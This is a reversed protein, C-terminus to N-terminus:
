HISDRRGARMNAWAGNGDLGPRLGRYIVDSVSQESGLAQIQTSALRSDRHFFISESLVNAVNKLLNLGALVSPGTTMMTGKLRGIFADEHQFSRKTTWSAQPRLSDLGDTNTVIASIFEAAKGSHRSSALVANSVGSKSKPYLFGDHSSSRIAESLTDMGGAAVVDADMYVGGEEFMLAARTIDSAAAYNRYAGSKERNYMSELRAGHPSSKSINAYLDDTSKINIENGFNHALYREYASSESHLMKDLTSYIAMPRSTWVNVTYEPDMHKIFLMNSLAETSINKGEWAFHVVLPIAEHGARDVYSVPNNRVMRYLNQGDVTGAPDPNLWRGLWPAYYRFGYYYLGTADREKASYRVFKYKTESASKGSWVATGGFPYYEEQTLIDADQNLEILTSGIQNDLTGRLQDNAIDEPRGEEWHLVRVQQRGTSGVSIVHLEEVNRTTSGQISQTRRVELGPLYIVQVRRTTGSTHSVATKRVRTGAGDYQYHEEDDDSGGRQVQTVQQLQNRGNWLLTQGVALQKLNGAADFQGEVDAATPSVSQQVARNSTSSVLMDMTYSSNGVHRMQVLNGGNDYRYQRTYNSYQSPDAGSPEPLAPGQRGAGANERGSATLLQYLADYQYGNAPEIRQNNHFRSEIAANGISLINGVPDYVYSLDQLLASRTGQAPRTCVLRSLRLTQPEYHYNTVVGNGAAERLVQGGADYTVSALIPPEVTQGVLTLGSSALQGAINLQQRQQNGKADVSSLVDGLANYGICSQYREAELSALWQSEAGQWDSNAADDRLLQRVTQLPQSSITYRSVENLGATDYHRVLQGRSNFQAASPQNEGYVYRESVREREADFREFVSILRHLPDYEFRTAHGRSNGQWVPGAEVDYLTVQRGADQSQSLLVQGSLSTHYRFNPLVAPDLQRAAFLRADISSLLQGNVSYRQQSILESVAEGPANRNYQLTRVSLGRNDVVSVTPTGSCLQATTPNSTTSM